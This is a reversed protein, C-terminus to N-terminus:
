CNSRVISPAFRMRATWYFNCEKIWNKEKNGLYDFFLYTATSFFNSLFLSSRLNSVYPIGFLNFELMGLVISLGAFLYNAFLIIM